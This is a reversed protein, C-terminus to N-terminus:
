HWRQPDKEQFEEQYTGEDLPIPKERKEIYQDPIKALIEEITTIGAKVKDWADEFLTKMGVERTAEWLEDEYASKAILRRIKKDIKLFEFIGIQGYYGTYYCHPCGKGRYCNKIAPLNRHIPLRPAPEEMKCKECIRRVLRQAL